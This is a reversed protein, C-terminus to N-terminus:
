QETKGVRTKVLLAVVFILLEGSLYWLRSAVSITAADAMSFGASILTAALIGERVGIGGPAFFAILGVTGALPFCFGIALSVNSNTLAKVLFYFSVSFSMWRVLFYPALRIVQGIRLLPIAFPHKTVVSYLRSVMCHMRRSFLFCSIMIFLAAATLTLGRPMNLAALCVAGTLLGTWLSVLQTVLAIFVTDSNKYGYRRTIYSSRGLVMWIKGPIYKGFISLGTSVVADHYVVPCGHIDLVKNWCVAECLFGAALLVLSIVLQLHAYIRPIHLYDAHYLSGLLFALSLYIFLNFYKKM